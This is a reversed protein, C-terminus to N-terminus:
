VIVALYLKEIESFCFLALDKSGLVVATNVRVISDLAPALTDKLVWFVDCIAVADM